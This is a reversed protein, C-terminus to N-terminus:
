TADDNEVDPELPRDGTVTQGFYFTVEVRKEPDVPHAANHETVQNWLANVDARIRGLLGYVEAEFPHDREVDFSLTSGGVVDGDQSRAEAIRLKTAIATAMARFHDFVAAEWGREAGVPIVLTTCRLLEAGTADLVREIRGDDILTDVARASLEAGFPLGSTLTSREVQQHDYVALWVLNAVTELEAEGAMASRAQASALEYFTSAGRGTSSVFGTGVLDKLVAALDNPDEREFHRLLSQKGSGGTARLHEVVAGWLTRDRYTASEGLRQIKKQYSRLALGFMDAAVKRTVGQAELERSLVLFVQDAVHALPSRIGAATSIQAILITTQQVIADILRKTDM